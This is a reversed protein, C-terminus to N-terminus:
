RRLSFYEIFQGVTGWRSVRKSTKTAYRKFKTLAPIGIDSTDIELEKPDQQVMLESHDTMCMTNGINKSVLSLFAQKTTDADSLNFAFMKLDGNAHRFILAFLSQCEETDGIDVVRQLIFWSVYEQESESKFGFM